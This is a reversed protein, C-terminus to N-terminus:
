VAGTEATTEVMAEVPLEAMTEVTTEVVAEVPLEVVAEVTTTGVAMPFFVAFVLAHAACTRDEVTYRIYTDDFSTDIGTIVATTVENSWIQNIEYTNM